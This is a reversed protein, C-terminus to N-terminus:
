RAPGLGLGWEGLPEDTGPRVFAVRDIKGAVVCAPAGDRAGCHISRGDALDALRGSVVLDLGQKPAEEPKMSKTLEYQGGPRQPRSEDATFLQALVITPQGSTMKAFDGQPCGASLLWPQGLVFGVAGEYKRYLLDSIPLTQETVDSSVKARLVQEKADYALSRAANSMGPCGFRLHVEFKRGKLAAQAAHDDKGLAAATTANLAALIVGERDLENDVLVAPESRKSTTNGDLKAIEDRPTPRSCSALLLLTACTLRRLGTPRLLM